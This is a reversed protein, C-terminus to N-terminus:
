TPPTSRKQNAMLQKQYYQYIILEHMRQDTPFLRNIHMHIFDRLLQLCQNQEVEKLVSLIHQLMKQYSTTLTKPLSIKEQLKFSEFAENIKKFGKSDLHMEDAFSKAMRKVFLLQVQGTIALGTCLENLLSIVLMYLSNQDMNRNMLQLSYRSELWFHKEVTEIKDLGYRETERYYPRIQLDSVLGSRIDDELLTSLMNVVLHFSSTNKLQIRLRIHPTPITYRIYFWSKIHSSVTRLYPTIIEYLLLNSRSPHTYIEFYLWNNGPLLISKKQLNLKYGETSIAQFLSEKHYLQVIYQEMFPAGFQNKVTPKQPLFAETVYLEDKGKCHQLFFLLDEEKHDFLLFQDNLYCKFPGSINNENLWGKLIDTSLVKQQLFSSPVKWTRPSIIVQKYVIRPYYHLKPLLTKLNFTLNTQLNQHQLDCLFRYVALDSRQYNYASSLRPVLRKNYKKSRLIIEDGRVSVLMDSLLLPPEVGPWSLIDLTHPYISARRNVNDIKKEAQYAIDFFLVDPNAEQEISALERCYDTIHQNDLSFRGLLATATAGGAQELIIHEDSVQIIVNVTNPIAKEKPQSTPLDELKELNVTEKGKLIENLLSQQFSGYPIHHQKETTLSHAKLTEILENSIAFSELDNYGVGIEPDIAWLLPVEKYEFKTQFQQKFQSLPSPSVESLHQNLFQIAEPIIHLQQRNIGGSILPRESIDYSIASTKPLFHIRKFYDVGIINPHLDTILLQLEILQILLDEAVTQHLQYQNFLFHIATEKKDPQQYLHLIDEILVQREISSIEFTSEHNVSIYRLQKGANYIASNAWLYTSKKYLQEVNDTFADKYSWDTFSNINAQQDIIAGDTGILPLLSISGFLGFPTARFRARNFYKWCSFRIKPDLQEIKDVSVHEILTYLEKSSHKIAQKLEEWVDKLETNYSFLPTRCIATSFLKLNM